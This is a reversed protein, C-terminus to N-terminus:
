ARDGAWEGGNGAWERALAAVSWAPACDAADGGHAPVAAGVLESFDRYPRGLRAALERVMFRGVGAGVLPADAELGARSLNLECAARLRQLQCEALWAAVARWASLDADELDAGLMRALRRASAAASKDGGDAAAFLDAHAPLCGTLRHVDATTAFQEAMLPVWEGAFPVREALAMLPTRVVGTYVLEECALRQRDTVGRASVQGDALLVIDTTTSGVDVFLGQGVGAAARTASAMWNASAVATAAQTAEAASLFGRRGGFFSLRAAPLLESMATILRAVGERRSAFADVLEGTMTVAHLGTACDHEDRITAVASQLRDLGLWLPCDLQRVAVLAGDGDLIAAKVHAGGLDWGVVREPWM